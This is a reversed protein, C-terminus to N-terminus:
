ALDPGTRRDRRVQETERGDSVDAAVALANAIPRATRDAAEPDIDVVAVSAGDDGLRRAVASGIGSGAGTILAVM